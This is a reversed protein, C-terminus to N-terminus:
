KVAWSPQQVDTSAALAALLLSDTAPNSTPTIPNSAGAEKSVVLDTGAQLAVWPDVIVPGPPAGPAMTVAQWNSGTQEKAEKRVADVTMDTGYGQTTTYTTAYDFALDGGLASTNSAGIFASNLAPQLAWAGLSANAKRAADYQQTIATFDFAVVKNDLLKNTSAANYDGGVTVVQLTSIAKSDQGTYWNKSTVQDAAGLGLILDGGRRTLTLDAYRIGGGLSLVDAAGSGPTALLTDQGDGRNFAIVDRGAGGTVVDAGKGAAIFDSGNGADITDSGTGGDVVDNGAGTAIRDAGAGAVVVDSGSGSSIIDDGAGAAILNDGGGADLVDNGTGGWLQDAGDGGALKDNGGEGYLKDDGSGGNLTDSASRGVLVDNGRGGSLTTAGASGVMVNAQGNGSAVLSASGLLMLNEVHQPLVFNVSSAVTDIGGNRLEVVTDGSSRDREDDRSDGRDAGHGEDDDDDRDDADTCAGSSADVFYTDDGKGGILTDAGKAGDIVDAYDTGILRDNRNTGILTVGAAEDRGAIEVTLQAMSTAGHQDSVTYAFVENAIQGASLAQVAAGSNALSYTYGGQTDLVLTGYQGARSGADSVTLIDGADVDSDNALVNGSASLVDDESVAAVDVQAVPGDNVGLVDVQVASDGLWRGTVTDFSSYFGLSETFSQGQGLAQFELSATDLTYAFSGDEGASATGLEGSWASPFALSLRDRFVPDADNDLLNGVVSAAGPAVTFLDGRPKMLVFDDLAAVVGETCFSVASIREAGADLWGRLTVQVGNSADPQGVRILLDSADARYSLEEPRIDGSFHLQGGANDDVTDQGDGRSFVYTDFGDGGLLLDDGRWGALVDDGGGGDLTNDGSNGILINAAANGFAVLAQDGDLVLGEVNDALVYQDLTTRVIDQGADAAEIVVDGADDVVYTDDGAGAAMIDAGAGGDLTNRGSNGRLIQSGADTAADIDLDPASDSLEVAEINSLVVSASAIVKDNGQGQAEVVTDTVWTALAAGDMGFRHDVDCWDFSAVRGDPNPTSEGDVYYTDDGSGGILVDLGEGGDLVDDNTSIASALVVSIFGGELSGVVSVEIPSPNDAGGILVDEGAGGFLVDNGDGGDLVDNGAGGDLFDAGSSALAHALPGDDHGDGFDLQQALMAQMDAPLRDRPWYVTAFTRGGPGGEHQEPSPIGIGSVAFYADREGAPVTTRLGYQVQLGDWDLPASRPQWTALLSDQVFGGGEWTLSGDPQIFLAQSPDTKGLWYSVYFPVPELAEDPSAPVKFASYPSPEYLRSSDQSIDSSFDALLREFTRPAPPGLRFLADMAGAIGFGYPEPIVASRSQGGDIRDNGSGGAILDNGAGGLILNDDGGAVIYLNGGSASADLEEVNEALNLAVTRFAGADLLVRDYGGGAYEVLSVDGNSVKYLDDGEGGVLSASGRTSVLTDRGAGGDLLAGLGSGADLFDDGALGYLSEGGERGLIVNDLSNGIGTLGYGFMTLNEFDGQLTYDIFSFVTDTGEDAAEILVDDIDDVVYSDDGGGGVMLDAGTGGDLLNSSASGFLQDSGDDGFLYDQGQTGLLIDDGAGGRLVDIGGGGDLINDNSNGIIENPLDNGSGLTASGEELVLDEVFEGLTFDIRSRVVDHGGQALAVVRDNADDVAYETDGTGGVMVDAGTGGDLRNVGGGGVLVDDGGLGFLETVTGAGFSELRNDLANGTGVMEAGDPLHRLLLNEFNDGLTFSEYVDVTDTGGDEAEFLQTGSAAFGFRLGNITDERYTDDGDGGALSDGGRSNLLTDDGDGGFLQDRGDEGRLIDSGDGGQLIDDGEAGWLSDDGASGDLRDNGQDGYLRDNGAGGVLVDNGEDARLEDDGDDGALLDDGERGLLHDNGAGGHLSDNGNRGFMEDNGGEGFLSSGSVSAYLYNRLDNGIGTHHDTDTMELWEVDTGQISFDSEALVTDFGEGMLEVVTDGADQVIYVDDGAGGTMVDLGAGGELTDDGDTGLLSDNGGFGWLRDRRWTGTLTDDGDTGFFSLGQRRFLDDIGFGKEYVFGLEHVTLIMSEVSSTADHDLVDFGEIEVLQGTVANYIGLNDAKSGLVFHTAYAEWGLDLVDANGGDDAITKVGQDGRVVYTDNGARGEMRDNGDMGRLRNDADNGQLRNNASNGTASEAEGALVLNEVHSPLVYSLGAIVTDSGQGSKEIVMDGSDDVRYTDDGAGGELVDAGAAGDLVNDGANGVLHNAEDNGTANIAQSGTLLLTEVNAATLVYDVSAAITDQGEGEFEIIQDEGQGDVVYVDDGQGGLLQDVGLGGTLRDNGENGALVDDGDGGDLIDNFATGNLLDDGSTGHDSFGLQQIMEQATLVVSQGDATSFVFNEIASISAADDADFGEIHVEQGTTTNRLLLSGRGLETEGLGWGLDLTETGSEDVLVKNGHTGFIGFRDNGAGGDLMDDGDGSNLIDNGAGGAIQDSGDGGYISDDGEGGQLTDDGSGGVLVDAGTGGVLLDNGADGSLQDDGAGGILTDDGGGGFLRDDGDGGDLLDAGHYQVAVDDGDGYLEDDGAGGYLQDDGGQGFLSDDGAEGDLYDDGHFEGDLDASDGQLTDDGEGGFLADDKGGGFLTDDGDEGDLYDNGHMSGALAPGDDGALQDDGMGGYLTDDGGGGYLLDDGDEGDLYDDGWANPDTAADGKLHEASTDGWLVDDGAGGYLVDDKGGGEAVDDGDEGDIYDEGQFQLDIFTQSDSDGGGDGFIRDDGEGGFIDDSGGGGNIEDDGAGGDIFDSGHRSAAVSNLYGAKVLGDGDLVDDGDGGELIDDGALGEIRDDGAGGQVRDDGWSAIVRDDGAGADISDSQSDTRTEMMGNWVDVKSDSTDPYVGWMAGLAGTETNAPQGWDAWRDLPGFQQRDPLIDASSSIYDDGDGGLIRDNGAGGGIMDDGAGGDIQDDGAKGAILDNGTKGDIKDKGATGYLTDDTVEIDDSAVEKYGVVEHTDNYIPVLTPDTTGEVLNNNADTVFYLEKPEVVTLETGDLARRTIPYYGNTETKVVSDGTITFDPEDSADLSLGWSNSTATGDKGQYTVSLSGEADEDLDGDQVLAFTVLTQGEALVIEAGDADVTEDGLIAKLGRGALGALKLLLSDGAKADQSLSITFTVGAGQTVTSPTAQLNDTDANIDRWFNGGGGKVLAVDPLADLEIGLYGGDLAKAPDFNNITITNATDTGKVIVAKYGTTSSSSDIVALGAYQGGGMDFAYGGRRGAGKFASLAKTDILISGQGDSDTVTDKGFADDFRYTDDGAGGRLIDDGAEGSIFDDGAGGILTDKGNGGYLDDIGGNGEIYDDGDKGDIFDEGGGGYLHDGLSNDTGEFFENLDTGFVVRNAPANAGVGNVRQELSIERANDYFDTNLIGVARERNLRNRQLLALLMSARDKVWGESYSLDSGDKERASADSQWASFQETWASSWLADLASQDDPDRAKFAFPSLSELAAFAAFDTKAREALSGSVSQILVKGLLAQYDNDVSILALNRQLETRGTYGDAGAIRAWTGGRPDGKLQTWRELSDVALYSGLANVINELLDGEASGQGDNREGKLYTAAKFIDALPAGPDIQALLNQVGLSDVMLTLSHTDGFDNVAFNPQLLKFEGPKLFGAILSTVANGRFLPQDEILVPVRLGYHYQSNAVASPPNAGYLDYFHGYAGGPGVSRGYYGFFGAALPASRFSDTNNAAHLVALQYDVGTAEISAVPVDLTSAVDNTGSPIGASAREAEAVVLQVRTMAARLQAIDAALDPDIQDLPPTLEGIHSLASAVEVSTVISNAHFTGAIEQYINRGAQTTFLDTNGLFTRRSNFDSIADALTGTKVIGVGAGNFTYVSEAEAPHLRKFATALHGGLSYGTVNVSQGLPIKGSGKLGAYWREMDGIQGFAWGTRRIELADTAESDRASDDAFETSRFSIVLEGEQIGRSTDTRLARFLTGSFGSPTNSLHEVVTWDKSFEEAEADTFRISRDNGSRLIALANGELSGSFISGAAAVQLNFLAEAAMQVTAYKLYEAAESAM